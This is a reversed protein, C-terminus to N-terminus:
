KKEPEKKEEKKEAPAAPAPPQARMKQIRDLEAQARDKTAGGLEVARQFAPVALDYNKDMEYALGLWFYDIPNPQLMNLETALKLEDIAEKYMRRKLYVLGLSARPSSETSRRRALWEQESMGPPQPLATILQIARKSYQEARTLKQDRDLDREGTRTSLAGSVVLLALLSNPNEQISKEGYEVTHEYDNKQSYASSMVAFVMSKLTTEPYKQLFQEGLGIQKDSDLENLFAGYTDREEVTRPGIQQTPPQAQGQPKQQPPPQQTQQAALGATAVLLSIVIACFAKKM